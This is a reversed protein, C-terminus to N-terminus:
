SVLTQLKKLVKELNIGKGLVPKFLDGETQLREFLTRATFANPKLGRKVEDWHLPTSVPMGAKPRLAYPAAATQTEKNQLFDLYIKGKRKDPNREVSTLQPLEQQVLTVVMEAFAKSADYSYTAGLPIYIHMGTSGSTKPYCAAGLTDLLKKVVLATEVVQNYTNSKDPDLDILCWDPQHIASVRSHWPHMEICGLNAMYILSAENTCVLYQVPKNTSESFDEHTQIWDPVKGAMDKQYFSQASIGNPYRHLSHPRNLLYPLLYPAVQLYYNLMHGKSFSEKKWYPKNLSTLKLEQGNLKVVQEEATFDLQLGSTKSSTVSKKAAAKKTTATSKKAPTRKGKAAAKKVPTTDEPHNPVTGNEAAVQAITKGTRVSTNQLTVDDDGSFADQKKVLLWSNGKTDNKLQFLTFLGQIKKGHLVLNLRGGELGKLLTKEQEAKSRGEAGAPEYVGEDWIIVTGGGYNGAPIVGEFHRYDYPHDEVMMALRKDAPNLSPGKPVAWSKLVGTLELRFDYHLSSADHKQVVFRLGKKPAKEKGVPEPTDNFDRKKHYLSLSM